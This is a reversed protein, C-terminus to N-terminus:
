FCDCCEDSNSNCTMCIFMCCCCEALYDCLNAVSGNTSSHHKRRSESTTISKFPDKNDKSIEPQQTVRYQSVRPINTATDSM